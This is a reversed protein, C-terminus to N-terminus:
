QENDKSNVPSSSEPLERKKETFASPPELTSIGEDAPETAEFTNANNGFDSLFNFDLSFIGGTSAKDDERDAQETAQQM